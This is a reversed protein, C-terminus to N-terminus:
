DIRKVKELIKNNIRDTWIESKTDQLDSFRFDTEINFDVIVTM